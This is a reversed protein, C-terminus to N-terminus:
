RFANNSARPNKHLSCYIYQKIPHSSLKLQSFSNLINWFIVHSPILVINWWVNLRCKASGIWILIIRFSSDQHQLFIMIVDTHSKWDAKLYSKQVSVVYHSMKIPVVPEKLRKILCKYWFLWKKMRWILCKYQFLLCKKNLFRNLYFFKGM